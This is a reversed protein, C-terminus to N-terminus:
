ISVARDVASSVSMEHFHELLPGKQDSGDVVACMSSDATERHMQLTSRGLIFKYYTVSLVTDTLIVACCIFTFSNQCSVQTAIAQLYVGFM